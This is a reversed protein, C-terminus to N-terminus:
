WWCEYCVIENEWDTERIVKELQDITSELHGYYYEDYDTGGFFFGGQTPLKSEAVFKEDNKGKRGLVFKCTDVLEQLAEKSVEQLECNFDYDLNYYDLFWKHIENAKRWYAVNEWEYYSKGTEENILQRANKDRKELYMDLGM